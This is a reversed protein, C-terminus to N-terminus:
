ARRAREAAAEAALGNLFAMGDVFGVATRGAPKPRTFTLLLRVARLRAAAEGAPNFAIEAAAQLAERALDDDTEGPPPMMDLTTMDDILREAATQSNRRLTTLEDKKGAWGNPVGLRTLKGAEKATRHNQRLAAIRRDYGEQTLPYGRMKGAAAPCWIGIPWGALAPHGRKSRKRENTPKPTTTENM